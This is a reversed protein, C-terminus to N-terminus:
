AKVAVRSRVLAIPRGGAKEADLYECLAKVTANNLRRKKQNWASFVWQWMAKRCLRSGDSTKVGKKDGSAEVSPALGLTKQFRRM